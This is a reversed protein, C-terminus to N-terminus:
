KCSTGFFRRPGRHEGQSIPTFEKITFNLVYNLLHYRTPNDKRLDGTAVKHATMHREEAERRATTTTTKDSSVRHKGNLHKTANGSSGNANLAIGEDGDGCEATAMCMWRYKADKGEGQVLKVGYDYILSRNATKAPM